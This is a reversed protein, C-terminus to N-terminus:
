QLNWCWWERCPGDWPCMTSNLLLKGGKNLEKMIMLAHAVARVGSVQTEQPLMVGGCALVQEILIKSFQLLQLATAAEESGWLVPQMDLALILFKMVGAGLDCSLEVLNLVLIYSFPTKGAPLTTIFPLVTRSMFASSLSDSSTKTPSLWPPSTYHSGIKRGYHCCLARKAPVVSLTCGTCVTRPM